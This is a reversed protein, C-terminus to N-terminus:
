LRPEGAWGACVVATWSCFSVWQPLDGRRQVEVTMSLHSPLRRMTAADTRNSSMRDVDVVQSYALLLRLHLLCSLSIKSGATGAACISAMARSKAKSISRVAIVAVIRRSQHAEWSIHSYGLLKCNRPSANEQLTDLIIGCPSQLVHPLFCGETPCAQRM